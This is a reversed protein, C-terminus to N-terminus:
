SQACIISAAKDSKVGNSRTGFSGLVNAFDGFPADFYVDSRLLFACSSIKRKRTTPVAFAIFVAYAMLRATLYKLSGVLINFQAPRVYKVIASPM